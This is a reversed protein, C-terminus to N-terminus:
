REPRIRITMKGGQENETVVVLADRPGIQGQGFAVDVGGLRAHTFPIPSSAAVSLEGDLELLAIRHLEPDSPPAEHRLYLEGTPVPEAADRSVSVNRGVNESVITFPIATDGAGAFGVPGLQAMLKDFNGKLVAEILHSLNLIETGDAQVLVLDAVGVVENSRGDPAEVRLRASTAKLLVVHPWVSNLKGVVHYDANPGTLTEPSIAPVGHAEASRRAKKTFGAQSALVLQNTPLDEHKKITEELWGVPAPRSRANAEVSVIVDYGATKARIVADVERLDGTRREPLLASEEVTAERAMHRHIIAVVEQFVNTRKPM